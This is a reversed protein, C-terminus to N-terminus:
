SLRCVLRPLWAQHKLDKVGRFFDDTHKGISWVENEDVKYATNCNV